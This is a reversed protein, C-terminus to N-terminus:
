RQAGMHSHVAHLGYWVAATDLSLLGGVVLWLVLLDHRM